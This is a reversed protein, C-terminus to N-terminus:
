PSMLSYKKLCMTALVAVFMLTDLSAAVALLAYRLLVDSWLLVECTYELEQRQTSM